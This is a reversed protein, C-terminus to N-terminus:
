NLNEGIAENDNIINQLVELSYELDTQQNDPKNFAKAFANPNNIELEIKM